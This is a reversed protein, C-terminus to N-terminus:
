SPTAPDTCPPTSAPYYSPVGLMTSAVKRKEPDDGRYYDLIIRPRASSTRTRRVGASPPRTSRRRRSSPPLDRFYPLRPGVGHLRHQHAGGGRPPAPTGSPPSGGSRHGPDHGPADPRHLRPHSM